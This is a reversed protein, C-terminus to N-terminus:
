GKTTNFIKFVTTAFILLKNVTDANMKNIEHKYKHENHIYQRRNNVTLYYQELITKNIGVKFELMKKRSEYEAQRYKFNYMKLENNQKTIEHELKSKLQEIEIEMKEKEHKIRLLDLELVKKSKDADMKQKNIEYKLRDNDLRLKPNGNYMADDYTDYIGMSKIDELEGSVSETIAGMNKVIYTYGDPTTNNNSSKLRQVTEGIKIYYPKGDNDRNTIDISIINPENYRRIRESSEYEMTSYSLPHMINNNKDLPNIKSIVVNLNKIYVYLYKNIINMPVVSVLRIRIGNASSDKIRLKDRISNLSDKPIDINTSSLIYEIVKDANANYEKQITFVEVVYVGHHNITGDDNNGINNSIGFGDIMSRTRIGSIMNNQHICYLDEDRSSFLQMSYDNKGYDPHNATIHNVNNSFLPDNTVQEDCYITESEIPTTDKVM